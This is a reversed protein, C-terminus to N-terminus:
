IARNQKVFAVLKRWTTPNEDTYYGETKYGYGYSDSRFSKAGNLVITMRPLKKESFVDNLMRLIKTSTYGFRAVVVTQDIFESLQFSDSVIGIPAGDVIIHDYNQTLDAFFDKMKDAMMIESPYRPIKGCDIYFLNQDGEIPKILTDLPRFNDLFDVVGTIAKSGTIYEALKPKRFDMGVVITKKGTMAYTKALNLAIFTKGEGSIGSTILTVKRESGQALYQLNTRLLRFAESIADNQGVVLKQPVTSLPIQGLFPIGAHRQVDSRSYVKDNLFDLGYLLLMPLALGLILGFLYTQMKKPSIIGRSRAQELIKSNAVQGIVSLATKEREKFLFQYMDETLEQRRNGKTMQNELFPIASIQSELPLVNDAYRIKQSEIDDRLAQLSAAINNRVVSLKADYKEIGKNQDTASIKLEEREKLLRNYETISAALNANDLVELGFPITRYPNSGDNIIKGISGIADTRINLELIKRNAANQQELYSKATESTGLSLKNTNRFGTTSNEIGSLESKVVGLRSDLFSLIKRGSANRQEVVFNSYSEALEDIIAAAKEPTHDRMKLTVVNSNGEKSVMMRSAYAMAVEKQNGISVSIPFRMSFDKIKDVIIIKSEWKIPKGFLCIMKDEPSKILTFRESDLYQVKFDIQKKVGRFAPETNQTDKIFVKIPSNGFFEEDKYKGEQIYSIHLQLSDVVRRMLGSSRMIMLQDDINSEVKQMGVQESILDHAITRQYSDDILLAGAVEYLNKKYKLSYWAGGLALLCSLLLVYWNKLFLRGYYTLNKHSKNNNNAVSLIKNYIENM